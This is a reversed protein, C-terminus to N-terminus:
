FTYASKQLESDITLYVDNGAIPETQDVIGTVKGYVNTSVIESGKVGSLEEEFENEIGSKGIVDTSNYYENEDNYEELEEASILGTYGMIHAFYLSENYVRHTQQKITVGPMNASNEMVAAVTADSVNSAVTIQIHKIIIFLAYRVSMIKLTDEYSYDDSIDFMRTFSDGTGEKLFKYVDNASSKEQEETLKGDELVYAYVNEKFRTLASGSINFEFEGNGVHDIYFEHDLTDGNKEIINILQYVVKNREENSTIMNSDEMVVSYTLANSALLVGNRDYINGRTSKIERSQTQRIEFDEAHSPGHVIQLLFLRHIIIAFLVGFIIGTPFLRSKIARKVADLFIDLM